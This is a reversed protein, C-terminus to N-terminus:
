HLRERLETAVEAEGEDATFYSPMRVIGADDGFRGDVLPEM